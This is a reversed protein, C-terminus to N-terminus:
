ILMLILVVAFFTEEMITQIIKKSTNKKFNRMVESLISGNIAKCMLHKHSHMICYDYIELAKKDQCYQLANIINHKQHNVYYYWGLM